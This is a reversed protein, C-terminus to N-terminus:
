GADPEFYDFDEIMGEAKRGEVFAQAGPFQTTVFACGDVMFDDAQFYVTQERFVKIHRWQRTLDLAKVVDVIPGRSDTNIVVAATTANEPHPPAAGMYKALAAFTTAGIEDEILIMSGAPVREIVAALFANRQRAESFYIEWGPAVDISPVDGGFAHRADMRRIEAAQRICVSAIGGCMIVVGLGPLIRENCLLLLGGAVGVLSMLGISELATKM